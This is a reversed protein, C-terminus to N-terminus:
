EPKEKPKWHACQAVLYKLAADPCWVSLGTSRVCPHVGCSRCLSRDLLACLEEDRYASSLAAEAHDSLSVRTIAM